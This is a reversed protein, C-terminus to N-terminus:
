SLGSENVRSYHVEDASARCQRTRVTCGIEIGNLAHRLAVGTM